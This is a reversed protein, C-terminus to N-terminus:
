QPVEGVVVQGSVALSKVRVSAAEQGTLDIAFGPAGGADSFIISELPQATTVGGDKYLAAAWGRPLHIEAQVTSDHAIKFSEGARLTIAASRTEALLRAREVAEAATDIATARLSGAALPALLGVGLAAALGAIACAALAEILTFASRYAVSCRSM